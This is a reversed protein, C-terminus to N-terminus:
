GNTKRERERQQQRRKTEAEFKDRPDEFSDPQPTAFGTGLRSRGPSDLGCNSGLQKLTNRESPTIVRHRARWRLECIDEVTYRDALTLWPAMEAVERWISTLEAAMEFGEEGQRVNFHAPPPGLPGSSVPTNLRSQLRDPHKDASGNLILEAASKRPRGRM